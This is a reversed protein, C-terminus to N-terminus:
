EFFFQPTTGILVFNPSWEGSSQRYMYAWFGIPGKDARIIYRVKCFDPTVCESSMVEWGSIAGYTTTIFTTQSALQAIETTKSEVLTGAFLDRYAGTADGSQLARFFPEMKLDVGARGEASIQPLDEEARAIGGGMLAAAFAFAALVVKLM